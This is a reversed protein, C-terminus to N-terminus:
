GGTEVKGAVSRREECTFSIVETLLAQWLVGLALRKGLWLWRVTLKTKTTCSRLLFTAFRRRRREEEQGGETQTTARGAERKQSTAHGVRHEVRNGRALSLVCTQASAGIGGWWSEKEEEEEQGKQRRGSM